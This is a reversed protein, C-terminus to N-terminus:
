QGGGAVAAAPGSVILETRMEHHVMGCYELCRITYRGPAPFTYRLRNTYKPMAQVQALLRMSADYIGFGHNVDTSTVQFEVPQGSQVTDGSLQWAWQSGTIRVVQPPAAGDDHSYPLRRLTFALVVLTFVALLWFLRPRWSTARRAIPEYESSRSATSVIRVFTAALVAVLIVTVLWATQQPM